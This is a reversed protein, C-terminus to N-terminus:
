AQADVYLSVAYDAFALSSTFAPSVANLVHLNGADKILVFDMELRKSPWHVVQARIGMKSSRALDRPKLEPVMARAERYIGRALYKLPERVAATRFAPDALLRLDRGLIQAGERFRLGRLSYADPGLAPTATPGVFVEESASRSLHVGLFPNRLDPVPYINGRVLHSRDTILKRYTGKFPLILYELGTGFMHAIRAAHTGGANLLGAFTIEPGSTVAVDDKRMGLFSTGTLVTVRGSRELEDVLARLIEKPQVTATHPSHLAVDHTRAHPEILKLQDPSILETAMGGNDSLAKMRHLTEVERDNRAVVVKGSRVLQLGRRECFEVMRRNGEACFRAKLTGPM